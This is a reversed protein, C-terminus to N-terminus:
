AYFDWRNEIYSVRVGPVVSHPPQPSQPAIAEGGIIKGSSIWILSYVLISVICIFGQLGATVGGYCKLFIFNYNYMNLSWIYKM